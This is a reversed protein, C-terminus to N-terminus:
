PVLQLYENFTQKCRDRPDPAAAAFVVSPDVSLDRKVVAILGEVPDREAYYKM